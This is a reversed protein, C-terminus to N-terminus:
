LFDIAFSTSTNRNNHHISLKKQSELNIFMLKKKNMKIAIIIILWRGDTLEDRDRDVIKSSVESSFTKETTIM